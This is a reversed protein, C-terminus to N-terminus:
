RAGRQKLAALRAQAEAFEREAQALEVDDVELFIECIFGWGYTRRLTLLHAPKPDSGRKGWSAITEAPIGHGRTARHTDDAMRAPTAVPHLRRGFTM